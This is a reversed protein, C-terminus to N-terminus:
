AAFGGVHHRPAAILQSRRPTRQNIIFPDLLGALLGDGRAIRDAGHCIRRGHDTHEAHAERISDSVQGNGRGAAAM